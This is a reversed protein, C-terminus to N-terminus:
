TYAPKVHVRLHTKINLDVLQISILINKETRACVYVCACACVCVRM